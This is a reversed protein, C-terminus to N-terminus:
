VRCGRCGGEPYPIERCLLGSTSRALAPELPSPHGLRLLPIYSMRVNGSSSPLVRAPVELTQSTMRHPAVGFSRLTEREPNTCWYRRFALASRRIPSMSADWRPPGIKQGLSTAASCSIISSSSNFLCIFSPRLRRALRGPSKLVQASSLTSEAHYAPGLHWSKETDYQWERRLDGWGANKLDGPTLSKLDGPAAFFTTELNGLAAFDDPAAVGGVVSSIRM